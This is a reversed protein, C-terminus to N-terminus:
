RLSGARSEPSAPHSDVVFVPYVAKADECAELLARNDHLRLGKRFWQISVHKADMRRSQNAAGSAKNAYTRARLERVVVQLHKRSTTTGKLTRGGSFAWSTLVLGILAVGKSMCHGIYKQLGSRKHLPPSLPSHEFREVRYTGRALECNVSLGYGHSGYRVTYKHFGM